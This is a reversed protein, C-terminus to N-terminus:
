LSVVVVIKHQDAFQFVELLSIYGVLGIMYRSSLRQSHLLWGVMTIKPIEDFDAMSTFPISNNIDRMPNLEM